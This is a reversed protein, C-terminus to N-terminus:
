RPGEADDCRGVPADRVRPRREDDLSWDQHVLWAPDEVLLDARRHCGRSERRRRAARALLAAVLATNTATLSADDLGAARGPEQAAAEVLALGEDTRLVGAYEALLRRIGGTAGGDAPPSSPRAVPPGPRPFDAIIAEAARRGMVLGETLSNSALRNAGQVGTCAAEGVAHLGPVDTRGAMDARVGGCHYHAGPRVPIPETVPDVGRERCMRLISPFRERWAAAGFATADLFLHPEGTRAMHAHEASSVVDRPALDALQHVGAMIRAGGHDVLLAGDGRVAESILVGRDGPRRWRPPVVLVTPHFQLFEVDRARAGARLAAALGDGTCVPPNTSTPWLGAIGGSALVVAGALISGTRGRGDLVRAGCAEGDADTLVDVVRVSERVDLRARGRLAAVLARHVEHGSRDGGAHLIRRASHGGELHLDAGGDPGTDFRAGLAILRRLAEPAEAALARVPGPECLGAGATLTDAVHSRTSDEPSWVAALGGQAWDTSSDSLSARTLITTPVGSRCLCWATTLGAVGSGVVLVGTRLPRDEAGHPLEWGHM